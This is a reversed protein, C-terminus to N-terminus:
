LLVLIETQSFSKCSTASTIDPYDSFLQWSARLVSAIQSNESRASIQLGIKRYNPQVQACLGCHLAEDIFSRSLVLVVQLDPLLIFATHRHTHTECHSKRHTHHKKRGLWLGAKGDASVEARHLEAPQQVIHSLDVLRDQTPAGHKARHVGPDDPNTNCVQSLKQQGAGPSPWVKTEGTGSPPCCRLSGSYRHSWRWDCWARWCGCWPSPSPARCTQTGAKLRKQPQWCLRRWVDKRGETKLYKSTGISIRGVM